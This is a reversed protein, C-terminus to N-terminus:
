QHKIFSKMTHNKLIQDTPFIFNHLQLDAALNGVPDSVEAGGAPVMTDHLKEPIVLRM